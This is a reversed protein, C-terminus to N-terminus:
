GVSFPTALGVCSEAAKGGSVREPDQAKQIGKRQTCTVNQSHLAPSHGPTDRCLHQTASCQLGQQCHPLGDTLQRIHLNVQIDLGVVVDPTLEDPDALVGFGQLGQTEM